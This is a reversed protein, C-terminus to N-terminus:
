KSTQSNKENDSFWWKGVSVDIIEIKDGNRTLTLKGPKDKDWTWIEYRVGVFITANLM